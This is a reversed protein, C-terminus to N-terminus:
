HPSAKSNADAPSEPSGWQESLLTYGRPDLADRFKFDIMRHRIAQGLGVNVVAYTTLMAALAFLPSRAYALRGIVRGAILAGSAAIASSLPNDVVVEAATAVAGHLEDVLTSLVGRRDDIGRGDDAEAAAAAQDGYEDFCMPYEKPLIYFDFSGGSGDHPYLRINSIVSWPDSHWDIPFRAAPAPEAGDLMAQVRAIDDRFSWNVITQNSAACYLGTLYDWFL